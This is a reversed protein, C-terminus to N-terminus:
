CFTPRMALALQAKGILVVGFESNRVGLAQLLSQGDLTLNHPAEVARGIVRIVLVDREHLGVENTQLWRNQIALATDALSPAAIVLVRAKGTLSALPPAAWAAPIFAFAWLLAATAPKLMAPKSWPDDGCALARFADLEL